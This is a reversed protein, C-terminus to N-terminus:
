TKTSQEIENLLAGQLTTEKNVAVDEGCSTARIWENIIDIKGAPRVKNM